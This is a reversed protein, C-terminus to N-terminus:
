ASSPMRSKQRDRPSPSTYLLCGKNFVYDDREGRKTQLFSVTQIAGGRTTFVAEIYDNYLTITKEPYHPKTAAEVEVAEVQQFLDSVSVTPNSNGAELMADAPTTSQNAPAQLTEAQKLQEIRQKEIQQSQWFMFGIGATIFVLGLFTNKKDM